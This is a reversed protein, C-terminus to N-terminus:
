SAKRETQAQRSTYVFYLILVLALLLTSLASALGWDLSSDMHYGILNGIFTGKAGGVLAPTIYFGVCLMFVLTVGAAIGARTLPVFVTAFALLPHAGLSVAARMHSPPIAKMVGHLSLVMVPLLVHVMAIFTGTQNFIMNLKPLGIAFLMKNLLGENQLLAIWGTTRVLVPTWYPILVVLMAWAAMSPSLKTLYFALPYGLLLCLLTIVASLWLTRWMVQTNVHSSGEATISGDAERKFDAAALYKDVSFPSTVAKLAIWPPESAWVPDTGLLVSATANDALEVQRATRRLVAGAEPWRDALRNGLRALERRKSAAKLESAFAAVIEDSPRGHGPTWNALAKGTDPLIALGSPDYFSRQVMMGLPVLFFALLFMVLPALLALRPAASRLASRFSRSGAPGSGVLDDTAGALTGATM